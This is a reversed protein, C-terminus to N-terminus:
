KARTGQQLNAREEPTVVRASNSLNLLDQGLQTYDLGADPTSVGRFAGTKKDRIIQSRDPLQRDVRIEPNRLVSIIVREQNPM